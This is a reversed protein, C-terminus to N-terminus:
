PTEEDFGSGLDGEAELERQYHDCEAQGCSMGAHCELMHGEPCWFAALPSPCYCKPNCQAATIPETQGEPITGVWCLPLPYGM